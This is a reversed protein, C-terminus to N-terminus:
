SSIISSTDIASFYRSACFAQLMPRGGAGAGANLRSSAAFSRCSTERAAPKGISHRHLSAGRKRPKARWASTARM